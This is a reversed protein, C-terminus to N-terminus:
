KKIAQILAGSTVLDSETLVVNPVKPLQGKFSNEKEVPKIFVIEFGANEIMQIHTSLPLRNMPYKRGHSLLEWMADGIFWHGNWESTMEHTKFDVQHSIVGGPRLWNFMERYAFEIDDVHEMVAQSFILDINKLDKKDANMWPVIYQIKVQESNGKILAERIENSKSDYYVKSFPKLVEPFSYNPLSPATFRQRETNPIDKQAIFYEKLHSNIIENKETNAHKLVDFAYYNFAGTYIASLGIGLSDGPGIEAVNKIENPSSFLKNEILYHLHRLWVSYCYESSFTGGSGPRYFISSPLVYSALGRALPYFRVRM